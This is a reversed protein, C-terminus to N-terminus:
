GVSSRSRNRIIMDLLWCGRVHRQDSRCHAIVDDSACKCDKLMKGLLDMDGFCETQYMNKACDVINRTLLHYDINIADFPSIIIDKLITAQISRQDSYVKPRKRKPTSKSCMLAIAAFDSACDKYFSLVTKYSDAGQWEFERHFALASDKDCACFLSAYAAWNETKDSRPNLTPDDYNGHVHEKLQLFQKTDVNGFILDESLRLGDQTIADPLLEKILKCCEYSYFTLKRNTLTRADVPCEASLLIQPNNCNDWDFSNM